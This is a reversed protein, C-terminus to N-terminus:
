LVAVLILADRGASLQSFFCRVQIVRDGTRGGTYITILIRIVMATM